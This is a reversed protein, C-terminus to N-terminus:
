VSWSPLPEGHVQLGSSVLMGSSGIDQDGVRNEPDPVTRIGGTGQVSFIISIFTPRALSKDASRYIEVLQQKFTHFHNLQSLIRFPPPSNSYQMLCETIDRVSLLNLLPVVTM